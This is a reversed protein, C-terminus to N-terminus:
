KKQQPTAKLKEVLQQEKAELKLIERYLKSVEDFIKQNEENVPYLKKPFQVDITRGSDYNNGETSKLVKYKQWNLTKNEELMLIKQIEQGFYGGKIFYEKNVIKKQKEDIFTKISFLSRNEITEGNIEAVYRETYKNLFIEYKKYKEILVLEKEMYVM